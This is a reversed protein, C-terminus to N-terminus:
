NKRKAYITVAENAAVMFNEIMNQATGLKRILIDIPFGKDDLKIIPEPIEFEVYGRKRKEKDM